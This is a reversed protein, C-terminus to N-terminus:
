RGFPVEIAAAGIVLGALSSVVITYGTKMKAERAAIEVRWYLSSVGSVLQRGMVANGHQFELHICHLSPKIRWVILRGILNSLFISAIVDNSYIAHRWRLLRPASFENHVPLWYIGSREVAIHFEGNDVAGAFV